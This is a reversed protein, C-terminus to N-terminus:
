GGLRGSGCGPDTLMHPLVVRASIKECALFGLTLGVGEERLLCLLSAGTVM